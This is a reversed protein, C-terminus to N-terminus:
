LRINPFILYPYNALGLFFPAAVAISVMCWWMRWEKGSAMCLSQALVIGAVIVALYAYSLNLLHSSGGDLVGLLVVGVLGALTVNLLRSIAVVGQPAQKGGVYHVFGMGLALMGILLSSFLTCGVGSQWFQSGTVMYIGIGGLSLPVALSVIVFLYNLVTGGPVSRHLFLYVLLTARIVLAIMGVLLLPWANRVVLAAADPFSVFLGVCGLVLLINTIEWRPSFIRKSLKAPALRPELRMLAIGLEVGSLVGYLSFATLIALLSVIETGM